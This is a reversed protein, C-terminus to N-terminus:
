AAAVTQARLRREEAGLKMIEERLRDAVKKQTTLRSKLGDFVALDLPEGFVLYIPDAKGRLGDLVQKVFNNSLGNIFVPLVRPRAELVLKGVGPQAPMLTYPDDTKNRTGEPHFGVLTGPRRCLDLLYDISYRNFDRKDGERFVPPFMSMGGILANVLIGSLHDYYYNSRVPFFLGNRGLDTHKLIVDLAVYFDFYSRHNAALLVSDDPDLKKVHELGEVRLIRRICPDVWGTGFARVYGYCARKLPASDNVARAVRFLARELPSLQELLEPSPKVRSM